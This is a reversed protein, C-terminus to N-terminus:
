GGHQYFRKDEAAITCAILDVPIQELPVPAARSSDPLTLHLIPDGHRDLLVPSAAPDKSLGAPVPVAFPLAFWGLVAALVAAPFIRFVRRRWKPNLNM